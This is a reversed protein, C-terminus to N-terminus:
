ARFVGGKANRAFACHAAVTARGRSSESVYMGAAYAGKNHDRITCDVLLPDGGKLVWVGADGNSAVECCELRGRTGPGSVIVGCDLGHSIRRRLPCLDPTM